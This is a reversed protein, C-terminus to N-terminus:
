RDRSTMQPFRDGLVGKARDEKDTKAQNRKMQSYFEAGSTAKV